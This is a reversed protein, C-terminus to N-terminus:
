AEIVVFAVAYNKEDAISININKCSLQNFRALSKGHLTINPQGLHNNVIEMDQFSIGDRFGTGLAKVAAEKAAFRKALFNARNDVELALFSEIEKVTLIKRAVKLGFKDIMDQWRQVAVIDTGVGVIM